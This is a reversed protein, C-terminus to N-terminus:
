RKKIRKNIVFIDLKSEDLLYATEETLATGVQLLHKDAGDMKKERVTAVCPAPIRKSHFRVDIFHQIYLYYYIKHVFVFEFLQLLAGM